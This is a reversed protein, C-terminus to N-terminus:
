GPVSLLRMLKTVDDLKELTMVSRVIEDVRNGPVASFAANIRFKDVLEAESMPNALTGKPAPIEVLYKRGGATVEVITDTFVPLKGSKVKGIMLEDTRPHKEVRVKQALAKVRPDDYVAPTQWAPGPERGYFAATAFIIVDSFQADLFSSVETIVRNPTLLLPDGKVAIEQIEEPPISNEQLIQNLGDIGAHNLRCVPYKKFNVECVHWTKGLGSLLSDVNFFPAAIITPFGWEGDLITTDGTFGRDALLTAVVALQAVWGAWADYKCMPSPGGTMEWKMLAPVPTSAGAIGFAHVIGAADLGLLRAAGAVGGYVTSAYTFRENDRYFPPEDILVKHQGLSATIRGGVELALGISLILERGSARAKEAMTLCSPLVYPCVHGALPGLIDYDLCNILEGNAFAALDPSTPPSGIISAQTGGRLERIFDIVLRPKDVAYAGLACGISDLLALKITDVDQPSLDNFSVGACSEALAQTINVTEAKM